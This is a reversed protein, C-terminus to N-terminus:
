CKCNDGFLRQNQATLLKLDNSKLMSKDSLRKRQKNRISNGLVTGAGACGVNNAIGLPQKVTTTTETATTTTSKGSTATTVLISSTVSAPTTGTSTTSTSTSVSCGGNEFKVGCSLGSDFGEGSGVGSGVDGFVSGGARNSDFSSVPCSSVNRLRNGDDGGYDDRVRLKKHQLHSYRQRQRHRHKFNETESDSDSNSYFNNLEDDEDGEESSNDNHINDDEDDDDDDGTNFPIVGVLRDINFKRTRRGSGSKRIM